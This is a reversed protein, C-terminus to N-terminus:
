SQKIERSTQDRVPRFLIYEMGYFKMSNLKMTKQFINAESAIAEDDKKGSLVVNSLITLYLKSSDPFFNSSCFLGVENSLCKDSFAALM